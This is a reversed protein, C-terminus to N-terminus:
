RTTRARYSVGTLAAATNVDLAPRDLLVHITKEDASGKRPRALDRWLEPLKALEAASVEAAEAAVMASTAVYRVFEDAAGQCYTNVLKFYRNM